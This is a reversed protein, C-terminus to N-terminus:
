RVVIGFRHLVRRCIKLTLRGYYFVTMGFVFGIAYREWSGPEYQNAWQTGYLNVVYFVIIFQTLFVLLVILFIRMKTM